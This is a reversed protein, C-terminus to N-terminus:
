DNNFVKLYFHIIVIIKFLDGIVLIYRLLIYEELLVHANFNLIYKMMVLSM